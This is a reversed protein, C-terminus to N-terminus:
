VRNLVGCVTDDKQARVHLDVVLPVLGISNRNDTWYHATYMALYKLAVKKKFRTDLGITM